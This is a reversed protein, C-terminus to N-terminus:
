ADGDGRGGDVFEGGHEIVRKTREFAAERRKRVERRLECVRKAARCFRSLWRDLEVEANVLRAVPTCGRRRKAM